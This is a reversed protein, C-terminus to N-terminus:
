MIYLAVIYTTHNFNVICVGSGKSEPSERGDRGAKACNTLKTACRTKRAESEKSKGREHNIAKNLIANGNM